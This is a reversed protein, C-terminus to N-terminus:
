GNLSNSAANNLILEIYNYKYIYMYLYKYNMKLNHLYCLPRRYASSHKFLLRMHYVIYLQNKTLIYIYKNDEKITRNVM